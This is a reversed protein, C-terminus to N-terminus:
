KMNRILQFREELRKQVQRVRPLFLAQAQIATLREELSPYQPLEDNQTPIYLPASYRYPSSGLTKYIARLAQEGGNLSFGCYAMARLAFADAQLEQIKHTTREFDQRDFLHGLVAHALEHALIFAFADVTPAVTILARAIIIQEHATTLAFPLDGDVIILTPTKAWKKGSQM